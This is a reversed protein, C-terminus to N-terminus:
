TSRAPSTPTSSTAPRRSTRTSSARASATAPMPLFRTSRGAASVPRGGIAEHLRTVGERTALDAEVSVVLAGLAECDAIVDGLDRDAAVVLDFGEEACIKALEYGIGSSAGTVVALPRASQAM